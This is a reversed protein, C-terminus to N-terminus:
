WAYVPKARSGIGQMKASNYETACALVFWLGLSSFEYFWKRKKMDPVYDLWKQRAGKALMLNYKVKNPIKRTLAKVVDSVIWIPQKLFPATGSDSTTLNTTSSMEALVEQGEPM